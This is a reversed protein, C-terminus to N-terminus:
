LFERFTCRIRFDVSFWRQGYTKNATCNAASKLDRQDSSPPIVSVEAGTDILFRHNTCKEYVYFPRSHMQGIVATAM